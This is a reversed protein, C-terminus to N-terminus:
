LINRLGPLSRASAALLWSAPLALLALVLFKVAAPAALWALGWGLLSVVLAHLVYVGVANRSLFTLRPGQADYRERFLVLLAVIMSVAFVSEFTAMLVGRLAGTSLVALPMLVVASLTAVVAAVRATRRTLGAFWGRRRALVGLVFMSLYQPLFSATPLGLVPVYTEPTVVLQWAWTAAALTVAYGVIARAPPAAPPIAAAPAPRFQRLLAYGLTFVLLVELFWTPGPDWTALYFRWFPAGSSLYEPILLIPRILLTFFLLPLGLRVLRDRIFRGSSKRDFAAPVFYGSILFFFGMFFSQNLLLLLDLGLGSPDHAPESYYWLPIHSYTVACHHVVVLATLAVRLNDIYALRPQTGTAQPPAPTETM